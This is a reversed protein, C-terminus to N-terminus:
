NKDKALYGDRGIYYATEYCEALTLMMDTLSAYQALVSDGGGQFNRFAVLFFKPTENFLVYGTDCAQSGCFIELITSRAFCSVRQFSSIRNLIEPDIRAYDNRTQIYEDVVLQLPAFGWGGFYGWDHYIDFLWVHEWRSGAIQSGNKWQYLEYVEEPLQIQLSVAQCM